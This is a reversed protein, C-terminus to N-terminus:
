GARRRPRPRRGPRGAPRAAARWPPPPPPARPPPARPGGARRVGASRRGRPGGHEEDGAVFAGSPSGSPPVPCTAPPPAKKQAQFKDVKDNKATPAKAPAGACWGQGDAPPTRGAAQQQQRGG